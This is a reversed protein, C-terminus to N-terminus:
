ENEFMVLVTLIRLVAFTVSNEGMEISFVGRQKLRTDPVLEYDTVNLASVLNLLDVIQRSGLHFSFTLLVTLYDELDALDQQHLHLLSVSGIESDRM